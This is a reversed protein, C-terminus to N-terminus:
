DDLTSMTGYAKGKTDVGCGPIMPTGDFNTTPWPDITHSSYSMFDNDFRNCRAAGDGRHERPELAALILWSFVPVFWTDACARGLEVHAGQALFACVILWIISLVATSQLL